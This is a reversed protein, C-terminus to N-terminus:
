RRRAARAHRPPKLSHALLVLAWRFPWCHFFAVRFLVVSVSSGLSMGYLLPTLLHSFRTVSLCEDTLDTM